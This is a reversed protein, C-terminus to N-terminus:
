GNLGGAKSRCAPFPSRLANWQVSRENETITLNTESNVDAPKEYDGLVQLGTALSEAPLTFPGLCFTLM